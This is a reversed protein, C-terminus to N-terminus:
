KSNTYKYIAAAKKDFAVRDAPSMRSRSIDLQMKILMDFKRKEVKKGTKFGITSGVFLSIAAVALIAFNSQKQKPKQNYNM